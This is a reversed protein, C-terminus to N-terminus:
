ETSHFCSMLTAASTPGPSTTKELKYRVKKGVTNVSLFSHEPPQREERLPMLKM